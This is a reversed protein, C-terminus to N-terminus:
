SIFKIIRFYDQYNYSSSYKTFYQKSLTDLDEYSDEFEDNPNGIYDDINLKFEAIQSAYGIQAM